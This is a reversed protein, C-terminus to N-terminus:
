RSRMRFEMGTVATAGHGRLYAEFTMATGGPPQVDLLRVRGPACAVTHDDLIRGPAGAPDPDDVVEVRNLKLAAGGLSVTCGPWPNLGHVRRQVTTAAQDFHVTGDSKALRPARCAGADDQPQAGLTGTGHLDLTEIMLQPGLEALRAELEGATEQPDIRIAQRGLVDGADIRQSITIVSVGTETEGNIIAWNVPAAGRYKPLLSAHLNVAFVDEVLERGLKQGFAIVVFADAGGQRIRAVTAADNVDPPKIAALGHEAAYDGIPTAAMRRNRGAPRDPRTVVLVVRHEARLKELTPLGFSGSGFYVLNM